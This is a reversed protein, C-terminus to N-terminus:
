ERVRLKGTLLKQMMGRKQERFTKLEEQLLRIEADSGELLEVIEEQEELSPPLAIKERLFDRADFILKEIHVGNSALYAMHWMRPSRALWDFFPMHLKEPAKCRFIVYENSVHMGDFPQRVMALAGHTVQRKSVLFDGAEIRNLDVTKFEKATFSGRFFLGGARRRISILDLPDDGSLTVPRFVRELLDSLRYTKWQQGASSKFRKKGTLLQQMFGHKLQQKTLLLQEQRDIARNWTGLVAAIRQQEPLPPLAILFSRLLETQIRGTGHGSRDVLALLHTKRAALAYALFEASVDDNPLLGKLDQNFASQRTTIGVPVDKNLTMGRVLILVTNSPVLRCNAAAGEASITDISDDLWFKKLDKASFWPISGRWYAAQGKHPTGGSVIKSLAGLERTRWDVPIEGIATKKTKQSAHLTPTPM